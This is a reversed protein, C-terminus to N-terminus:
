AEYKMTYKKDRDKFLYTIHTNDLALGLEIKASM